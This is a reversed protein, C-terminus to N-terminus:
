ARKLKLSELYEKRLFGHVKFYRVADSIHWRTEKKFIDLLGLRGYSVRKHYHYIAAKPFYIVQYKNEWFRKAWDVDSFYLFYREDMLGVKNIAERRAMLASGMLWDVPMVEITKKDTMLFHGLIRSAFPLHGLRRYAVTLPTYFRFYSQQSSGDFNLLRPGLLGVEPHQTIYEIMKEIEGPLVVIDPNLILVLEGSTNKIGENVGRTYGVNEKFPILKYEHFENFVVSRTEYTSASDVVTVDHSIQDPLHKKLSALCLRLLAPNKFNIIIISLKVEPM